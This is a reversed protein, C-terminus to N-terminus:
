TSAPPGLAAAGAPQGALSPLGTIFREQSGAELPDIRIIAGTPSYCIPGEPGNICAGPGGRGAEAVYLAGEPGFALGRPSFLGSAIVEFTARAAVTTRLPVLLAAATILAILTVRILKWRM